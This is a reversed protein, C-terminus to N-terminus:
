KPEELVIKAKVCQGPEIGSDFTGLCQGTDGDRADWEGFEEDFEPELNFLWHDDSNVDRTVWVDVGSDVRKRLEAVEAEAKEAYAIAQFAIEAVAREHRNLREPEGSIRSLRDKMEALSEVSM